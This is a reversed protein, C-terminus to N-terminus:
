AVTGDKFMEELRRYEWPPLGLKFSSAVSPRGSISMQQLQTQPRGFAQGVQVVLWLGDHVAVDLRLVDEHSAVIVHTSEEM